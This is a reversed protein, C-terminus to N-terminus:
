GFMAKTRKAQADRLRELTVAINGKSFANQLDALGNKFYGLVRKLAIPGPPPEDFDIKKHSNVVEELQQWGLALSVDDFIFSEKTEPVIVDVGDQGRDRVFHLQLGFLEYIAQANGFSEPLYSEEILKAGHIELRALENEITEVLPNKM